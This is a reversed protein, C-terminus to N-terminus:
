GTIVESFCSEDFNFPIGRQACGATAAPSLAYTFLNTLFFTPGTTPPTPKWASFEKTFTEIIVRGRGFCYEALVPKQVGGFTATALLTADTPLTIGDVLNGHAVFCSFALTIDADTLIFPGNVIPHTLAEPTFFADACPDPFILDPTGTSGPVIYGGAALNDGMDAILVGGSLLFAALNAQAAPDNEEAATLVMDGTSNSSLLIVATGAPIGLALDSMPHIFYDVGLVKGISLLTANDRNEGFWPIFNQYVRIVPGRVGASGTVHAPPQPEYGEPPTVTDQSM